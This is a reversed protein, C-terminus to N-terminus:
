ADRCLDRAASLAVKTLPDRWEQFPAIDLEQTFDAARTLGFKEAFSGGQKKGDVPWFRETEDEDLGHSAARWADGEARARHRLDDFLADGAKDNIGFLLSKAGDAANVLDVSDPHPAAELLAKGCRQHGLIISANVLREDAMACPTGEHFILFWGLRHVLLRGIALVGITLAGLAAAGLALASLSAASIAKSQKPIEVTM